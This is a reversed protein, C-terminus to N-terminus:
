KSTPKVVDDVYLRPASGSVRPGFRRIALEPYCRTMWRYARNNLDRLESRSTAGCEDIIMEVEEEFLFRSDSTLRWHKGFLESGLSEYVYSKGTPSNPDVKVTTLLKAAQPARMRLDRLTKLGADNVLKRIRVADWKLGGGKEGFLEDALEPYRLNIGRYAGQSIKQLDSRTEIKHEAVLQRIRDPTWIERSKKM